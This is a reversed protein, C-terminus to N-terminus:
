LAELVLARLAANVPPTVNFWITFAGQAQYLLM